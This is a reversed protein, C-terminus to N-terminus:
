DKLTHRAFDFMLPVSYPRSYNKNSKKPL